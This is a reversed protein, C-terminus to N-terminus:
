FVYLTAGGSELVLVMLYGNGNEDSVIIEARQMGANRLELLFVGELELRHGSVALHQSSNTVPDSLVAVAVGIESSMEMAIGKSLDDTHSHYRALSLQRLRGGNSGSLVSSRPLIWVGGEGGGCEDGGLVPLVACLGLLVALLSRLLTRM